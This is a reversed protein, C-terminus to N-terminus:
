AVDGPRLPRTALARSELAIALAVVILMAAAGADASVIVTAIDAAMQEVIELAADGPEAALLLICDGAGKKLHESLEAGDACSLLAFPGFASGTLDAMTAAPLAVRALVRLPSSTM